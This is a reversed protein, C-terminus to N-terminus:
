LYKYLMFLRYCGTVKIRHINNVRVLSVETSKSYRGSDKEFRIFNIYLMFLPSCICISVATMESIMAIMM